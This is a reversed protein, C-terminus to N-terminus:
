RSNRAKRRKVKAAHSKHNRNTHKKHKQPVLKWFPKNGLNTPTGLPTRARHQVVTRALKNEDAYRSHTTLDAKDNSASTTPMTGGFALVAGIVGM